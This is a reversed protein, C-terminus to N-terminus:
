GSQHAQVKTKGFFFDLAKNHRCYEAKKICWLSGIIFSVVYSGNWVIGNSVNKVARNEDM